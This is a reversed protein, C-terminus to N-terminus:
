RSIGKRCAPHSKYHFSPMDDIEEMAAGDIDPLTELKEMHAWFHTDLEETRTVATQYEPDYDPLTTEGWIINRLHDLDDLSELDGDDMILSAPYLNTELHDAHKLSKIPRDYDIVAFTISNNNISVSHTSTNLRSSFTKAHIVYDRRWLNVENTM